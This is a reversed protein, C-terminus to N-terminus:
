TRIQRLGTPPTNPNSAVAQRTAKDSSHSLKELLDSSANPHKALLRNTTDDKDFMATLMEPSADINRAADKTNKAKPLLYPPL